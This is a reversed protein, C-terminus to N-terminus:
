NFLLEEINDHFENGLSTLFEPQLHKMHKLNCFNKFTLPLNNSPNGYTSNSYYNLTKFTNKTSLLDCIIELEELDIHIITKIQLKRYHKIIKKILSAIPSFIPITGLTVIVIYTESVDNVCEHNISHLDKLRKTTQVIPKIIHKCIENRVLSDEGVLSTHSFRYGKTEIVLLKKKNKVLIDPSRKEQRGIHYVFDMYLQWTSRFSSHEISYKVLEKAYEEYPRGFFAQFRNQSPSYCGDRIKWYLGNYFHDTLSQSYVPFAVKNNVLFLPKKYFLSFDYPNTICTIAWEKGQAFDFSLSILINEGLSAINTSSCWESINIAWSSSFTTIPTIWKSLFSINLALYQSISLHFKNKFDQMFNIYEKKDYRNEESPYKEYTLWARPICHELTERSNFIVNKILAYHALDPTESYLYDSVIICIHIAIAIGSNLNIPTELKTVDGYALLWKWTTLIGQHSFLVRTDLIRKIRPLQEFDRETYTKDLFAYYIDRIDANNIEFYTLQSVIALMGGLNIDQILQILKEQDYKHGFLESYVAYVGWYKM